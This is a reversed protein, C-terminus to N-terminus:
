SEAGMGADNKSYKVEGASFRVPLRCRQGCLWHGRKLRFRVSHLQGRRLTSFVADQHRESVPIGLIHDKKIRVAHARRQRAPCAEVAIVDHDFKGPAGGAEPCLFVAVVDEVHHNLAFGALDGKLERILLVDLLPSLIPRKRLALASRRRASDRISLRVM